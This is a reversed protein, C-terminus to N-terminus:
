IGGMSISGGMMSFTTSPSFAGSVSNVKRSRPSFPAGMGCPLSPLVLVRVMVPLPSTSIPVKEKADGPM